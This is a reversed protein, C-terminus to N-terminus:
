PRKYLNLMSHYLLTTSERLHFVGVTRESGESNHVVDPRRTSNETPINEYIRITHILTLVFVLATLSTLLIM